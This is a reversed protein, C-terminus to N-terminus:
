RLLGFAAFLSAVLIGVLVSAIAVVTWIALLSLSTAASARLSGRTVFTMLVTNFWWFGFLGFLLVPLVAGSFSHLILLSGGVMPALGLPAAAYHHLARRWQTDDRIDGVDYYALDTTIWLFFAIGSAVVIDFFILEPYRDKWGGTLWSLAPMVILFSALAQLIIIRRFSLSSALDLRPADWVERGFRLPFLAAYAVTQWYARWAGITKRQLWPVRAVELKAPDFEGGCEPCRNTELGRLNYGCTQCFVDRSIEVPTQTV